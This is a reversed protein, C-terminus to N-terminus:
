NHNCVLEFISSAANSPPPVNTDTRQVLEPRQRVCSDDERACRLSIPAPSSWGMSTKEMVKSHTLGVQLASALRFSEQHHSRASRPRQCGSCSFLQQELENTRICTM